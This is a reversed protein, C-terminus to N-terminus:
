KPRKNVDMMEILKMGLTGNVQQWLKKQKTLAQRQFANHKHAMKQIHYTKQEEDAIKHDTLTKM